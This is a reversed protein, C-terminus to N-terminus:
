LVPDLNGQSLEIWNFIGGTAIKLSLTDGIVQKNFEAAGLYGSAYLDQFISQIGVQRQLSDAFRLLESKNVEGSIEYQLYKEQQAVLTNGTLLFLILIFVSKKM